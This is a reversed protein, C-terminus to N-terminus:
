GVFRKETFKEEKKIRKVATTTTRQLWRTLWIIVVDCPAAVLQRYFVDIRFKTFTQWWYGTMLKELLDLMQRTINTKNYTRSQLSERKESPGITVSSSNVDRGSTINTVSPWYVDLLSLLTTLIIFPRSSCFTGRCSNSTNYLSFGCKLYQKVKIRM